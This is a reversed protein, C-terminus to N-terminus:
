ASSGQLNFKEHFPKESTVSAIREKSNRSDIFKDDLTRATLRKEYMEEGISM